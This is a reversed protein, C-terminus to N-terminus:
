QGQFLWAFDNSNWSGVLLKKASCLKKDAVAPAM